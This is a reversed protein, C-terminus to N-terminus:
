PRRRRRRARPRPEGGLGPSRSEGAPNRPRHRGGGSGHPGGPGYGTPPRFRDKGHPARPSSGAGGGETRGTDRPRQPARSSGGSEGGPGTRSRRNGFIGASFNDDIEGAGGRTREPTPSGSPRPKSPVPRGGRDAVGGRSRPGAGPATRETRRETRDPRSPRAGRRDDRREDGREREPRPGRAPSRSGARAGSSEGRGGKQGRASRAGGGAGRRSSREDLPLPAFRTEHFPHDADIDLRRQMVQEIQRLDALEDEDCFSWAVGGAGARATRGIRHVYNEPEHPLDFNVVHTIDEVDIGRAVIDTAVLVRVKGTSFGGLATQRAGQTKNSHIAAVSIGEQKLFKVITDARRKTRSFVLVRKTGKREKLLWALLKRKELRGVLFLHQEIQRPVSTPPTAQVRVPRDLIQAALRDVEDPMTASFFLTQRKAPLKAVVKRVDQIFGMDLMRDAEDLVFVEIQDLRIYGQQMLDLLRGPTAVLIDPTRRLEAIQPVASVGGLIVTARLSLHRGYARLSETVQIALERTPALILARIARPGRRPDLHLRHLIPLAFAATKGTGTQALALLDRGAVADPISLRQVETPATYGEEAVARAIAPDIGLARFPSEASEASVPV